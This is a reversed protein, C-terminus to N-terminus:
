PAPPSASTDSGAAPSPPAAQRATTDPRQARPTRGPASDRAVGPVPPPGPARQLGAAGAGAGATATSDKQRQAEALEVARNIGADNVRYSFRERLVTALASPLPRLRTKGELLRDFYQEVKLAAV